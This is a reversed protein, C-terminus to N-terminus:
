ACTSIHLPMWKLAATADMKTRSCRNHQSPVATPNVSGSSPTLFCRFTYSCSSIHSHFFVIYHM